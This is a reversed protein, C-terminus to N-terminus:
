TRRAIVRYTNGPQDSKLFADKALDSVIAAGV